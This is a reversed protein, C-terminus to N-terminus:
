SHSSSFASLSNHDAEKHLTLKLSLIPTPPTYILTLTKSNAEKPGQIRINGGATPISWSVKRYGM